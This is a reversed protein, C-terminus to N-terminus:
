AEVETEAESPESGSLEAIRGTAREAEAALAEGRAELFGARQRATALEALCAARERHLRELQTRREALGADLSTLEERRRQRERELAAIDAEHQDCAATARA